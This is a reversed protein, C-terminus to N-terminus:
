RVNELIRKAMEPSNFILIELFYSPPYSGFYFNQSGPQYEVDYCLKVQFVGKLLGPPMKSIKSISWSFNIEKPIQPSLHNTFIM